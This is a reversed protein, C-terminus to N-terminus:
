GGFCTARGAAAEMTMPLVHGIKGASLMQFVSMELMGTLECLAAHSADVPAVVPLSRCGSKPPGGYPMGILTTCVPWAVVFKL